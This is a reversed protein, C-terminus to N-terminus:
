LLVLKRRLREEKETILEVYYVGQKWNGVPLVLAGSNGELPLTWILQGSSDYVNIQKSSHTLNFKVQTKEGYTPNPYLLLENGGDFIAQESELDQEIQERLEAELEELPRYPTVLSGNIRVTDKRVCGFCDRTEIVYIGPQLSSTSTLSSWSSYPGVTYPGDALLLGGNSQQQYIKVRYGPQPCHCHAVVVTFYIRQSHVLSYTLFPVQQGILQTLSQTVCGTADTIKLNYLGAQLGNLLVVSSSSGVSPLVVGDREVSVLFPAQGGTIGLKIQGSASAAPPTRFYERCGILHFGCSAKSDTVDLIKFSLDNEKVVAVKRYICPSVTLNGNVLIQAAIAMTYTGSTLNTFDNHSSWNLGGDISYLLNPMNTSSVITIRGNNGCTAAQVLSSPDISPTSTITYPIFAPNLTQSWQCGNADTIYLIGPSSTNANIFTFVGAPSVVDAQVGNLEISYPPTGGAVAGMLNAVRWGSSECRVFKLDKVSISEPEPVNLYWLVSCGKKDLIEIPITGSSLGTFTFTGTQNYVHQVIGNFMLSYPPTGNQISFEVSGNSVGSCTPANIQVVQAQLGTSGALTYFEVKQCGNADEVTITYTGASLNSVIHTNSGNSWQYSYPPTGSSVTVEISGNVQACNEDIVQAEFLLDSQYKLLQSLTVTCSAADTVTVSYVGADLGSIDELQSNFSSPGNWQFTYPALGGTPTIDLSGTFIPSCMPHSLQILAVSLSSAPISLPSVSQVCGSADTVLIEYSGGTQNVSFSANNSNITQSQVVTGTGMLVLEYTYPAVGGTVSVDVTYLPEPNDACSVKADILFGDKVTITVEDSNFCKFEDIVTVTYTTTNLPTADPNSVTHNSLTQMPSWLFTAPSANTTTSGGLTVSQGVCITQDVGADVTPAPQVTITVDDSNSCGNADFGTVTYTITGTPNAVPNFVGPDSLDVIPSWEYDVAGMAVLNTAGDECITRDYGADVIPLDFVTLVVQATSSCGEVSTGTVTYTSTQQPSAITVASNTSSLGVAPSWAYSAAGSATLQTGNGICVSTNGSIGLVPNTGSMGVTLSSSTSCGNGDTATVTYVGPVLGSISPTTAGTNWLYSITGCGNTALVSASGNGQNCIVDTVTSNQAELQIGVPHANYDYEAYFSVCSSSNNVDCESCYSSADITVSLSPQPFVPICTTGNILTFGNLVVSNNPALHIPFVLNNPIQLGTANIYQGNKITLDGNSLNNIVVQFEPNCPDFNDEPLIEVNYDLTPADIVYGTLVRNNSCREEEAQQKKLENGVNLGAQWEAAKEPNWASKTRDCNYNVVIRFPFEQATTTNTFNVNNLLSIIAQDSCTFRARVRITREIRTINAAPLIPLEFLRPTGSADAMKVPALAGNNYDYTITPFSSSVQPSYVELLEISEFLNAPSTYNANSTPELYFYLGDYVVKKLEFRSLTSTFDINTLNLPHQNLDTIINGTSTTFDCPAGMANLEELLEDSLKFEFEFEGNADVLPGTNGVQTLKFDGRQDFFLFPKFKNKYNGDARLKHANSFVDIGSGFVPPVAGGFLSKMLNSNSMKEFEPQYNSTYFVDTSITQVSPSFFMLPQSPICSPLMLQFEEYSPHLTPSGNTLFDSPQLGHSTGVGKKAPLSGKIKYQSQYTGLIDGARGAYYCFSNNERRYACDEQYQFNLNGPTCEPASYFIAATLEQNEDGILMPFNNISGYMPANGDLHWIISNTPPLNIVGENEHFYSLPISVKWHQVKNAIPFLFDGAAASGGMGAYTLGGDPVRPYFDDPMTYNAAASVSIGNQGVMSKSGTLPIIYQIVRNNTPSDYHNSTYLVSNSLYVAEPQFVAPVYFIISDALAGPRIENNFHNASGKGRSGTTYSLIPGVEICKAVDDSPKIHKEYSSYEAHSIGNQNMMYRTNAFAALQISGGAAECWWTTPKYVSPIYDPYSSNSCSSGAITSSALCPLQVAVEYESPHDNLEAKDILLTDLTADTIYMFYNFSINTTNANGSSNGLPQFVSASYASADVDTLFQLKFDFKWNENGSFYLPVSTSLSPNEQILQAYVEQLDLAIRIENTSLWTFEDESITYTANWSTNMADKYTLEITSAYASALNNYENYDLDDDVEFVKSSTTGSPSADYLLPYFLNRGNLTGADISLDFVWKDLKVKKAGPPSNYLANTNFEDASSWLCEPLNCDEESDDNVVIAPDYLYSRANITFVDGHRILNRNITALDAAAGGADAIGDDNSDKWGIFDPHRVPDEPTVAVGPTKCGPCTLTWKTSTKGVMWKNRDGLCSPDITNNCSGNLYSITPDSFTTHTVAPLVSEDCYAPIIYAKVTYETQPESAPCYAQLKLRLQAYEFVFIPNANVNNYGYFRNMPIKVRWRQGDVCAGTQLPEIVIADPHIVDGNTGVIEFVDKPLIYSGSGLTGSGCVPAVTGGLPGGEQYVIVGGQDNGFNPSSCFNSSSSPDYLGTIASMDAMNPCPISFGRELDVVFEMTSHEYDVVLPDDFQSYGTANHYSSGRLKNNFPFDITMTEIDGNWVDFNSGYSGKLFGGAHAELLFKPKSFSNANSKDLEFYTSCGDMGSWLFGETHLFPVEEKFASYDRTGGTGDSIEDLNVFEAEYSITFTSEEFITLFNPTASAPNFSPATQIGGTGISALANLNSFNLRIGALVETGNDKLSPKIEIANAKKATSPFGVPYPDPQFGLISAPTLQQGTAVADDYILHNFNPNGSSPSLFDTLLLDTAVIANSLSASADKYLTFSIRVSSPIVELLQFENPQVRNFEFQVQPDTLSSQELKFTISRAVKSSNGCNNEDTLTNVISPLGSGSVSGYQVDFGATLADAVEIDGSNTYNCTAPVALSPQTNCMDQSTSEFSLALNVTSVQGSSSPCVASEFIEVVYIYDGGHISIGNFVVPTNLYSSAGYAVPLSQYTALQTASVLPQGSSFPSVLPDYFGSSPTLLTSGTAVILERFGIGIDNPPFPHHVVLSGNSFTNADNQFTHIRYFTKNAPVQLIGNFFHGNSINVPQSWVVSGCINFLLFLLLNYRRSKKLGNIKM